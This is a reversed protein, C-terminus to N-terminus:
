VGCHTMYGHDQAAPRPVAANPAPFKSSSVGDVRHVGAGYPGIVGTTLRRFEVRGNSGTVKGGDADIVETVYNSAWPRRLLGALTRGAREGDGYRRAQAHRGFFCVERLSAEEYLSVERRIEALVESSWTAALRRELEGLRREIDAM